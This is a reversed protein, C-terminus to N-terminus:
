PAFKVIDKGSHRGIPRLYTSVEGFTLSHESRVL